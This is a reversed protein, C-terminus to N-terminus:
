PLAPIYQSADWIDPEAAVPQRTDTVENVMLRWSLYACSQGTQHEETNLIIAYAEDFPRTDVVERQEPDFLRATSSATDIGLVYVDMVRRSTSFEYIGPTELRVYDVGLQQIGDRSPRVEGARALSAEVFVTGPLPLAYDRLLLRVAMRITMEQPSTNLRWLAKYFGNLGVDTVLEQWILYYSDTGLDRIFSDVMLWEGYIRLTATRDPSAGICQDPTELVLQASRLADPYDPYVQTEIWVAGAEYLGEYVDRYDYGMQINHHLEHAVTVQMLSLVEAPTNAQQMDNDIVLHSYASRAEIITSNPNDGVLVDPRAYGMLGYPDLDVVYVDLRDDGGEGCDPPPMDWGISLQFALSTELADRLAAIYDRSTADAGQQTYHIVFHESEARQLGTLVPRPSDGAVFDCSFDLGAKDRTVMFTAEDQIEPTDVGAVIRYNGPPSQLYVLARVTEAQEATYWTLAKLNGGSDDDQALISGSTSAIYLLPDAGIDGGAFVYLRMGRQMGTVTIEVYDTTTNLTGTFTQVGDAADLQYSDVTVQAGVRATALLLLGIVILLQRM